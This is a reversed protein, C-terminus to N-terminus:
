DLTRRAANIQRPCAANIGLPSSWNIQLNPFITLEMSELQCAGNIQLNPRITLEM